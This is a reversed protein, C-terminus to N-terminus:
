IVSKRHDAKVQTNDVEAYIMTTSIQSHGLVKQVSTVPAGNQLMMTACTHRLIHPTIELGARRGIKVVRKRIASEKLKDFPARQATFLYESEFKRGALYSEVALHTKANMYVARKKKGKGLVIIEDDKFNIDDVKVNVAEAVRCGTSFLFEVIMKEFPTNAAGRLKELEMADMSTRPEEVFKIKKIPACPNKEVYGEELCWVFFANLNQRVKDLSRDSVGRQEKYNFLYLRIDEPRVQSPPLLVADFFARLAYVKNEITGRSHGEVIKSAAYTKVLEHGEASRLAIATEAETVDYKVLSLSIALEVERLDEVSLKDALRRLVDNKLQQKM